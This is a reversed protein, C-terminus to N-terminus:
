VVPIKSVDDDDDDDDDDDISWYVVVALVMYGSWRPASKAALFLSLPHVGAFL